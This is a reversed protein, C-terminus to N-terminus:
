SLLAPEDHSTKASEERQDIWHTAKVEIARLAEEGRAFQKSSTLHCKCAEELYLMAGAAVTGDFFVHTLSSRVKWGHYSLSVSPTDDPDHNM